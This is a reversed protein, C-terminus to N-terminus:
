AGSKLVIDSVKSKPIRTAHGKYQTLYYEETARIVEAPQTMGNSLTIMYYEGETNPLADKEIFKSSSALLFNAGDQAFQDRYQQVRVVYHQTEEFPPVGGYKKVNGPGANYGALALTVDDNFYRLMLAIYQTGGMVNQVPDFPDEVGMDSATGPMLQMLGRAGAPSVARPNFNSEQRIMGFVLYPDVDYHEAASRVITQISSKDLTDATVEAVLVPLDEPIEVEEITIDVDEYDSEEPYEETRPHLALLAETELRLRLSGGQRITEKRADGELRERISKQAVADTGMVGLCLLTVLSTMRKMLEGIQEQM